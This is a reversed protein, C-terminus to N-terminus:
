RVLINGVDENVPKGDKRQYTKTWLAERDIEEPNPHNKEVDSAM